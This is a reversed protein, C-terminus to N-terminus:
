AHAVNVGFFCSFTLLPFGCILEVTFGCIVKRCTLYNDIKASPQQVACQTMKPRCWSSLCSCPGIGGAWGYTPIHVLYCYHWHFYQELELVHVGMNGPRGAM